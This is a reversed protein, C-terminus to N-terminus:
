DQREEEATQYGPTCQLTPLLRPLANSWLWPYVDISTAHHHTCISYHVRGRAQLLRPQSTLLSLERPRCCSRTSRWMCSCITDWLSAGNSLCTDCTLTSLQQQTQRMSHLCLKSQRSRLCCYCFMLDISVQVSYLVAVHEPLPLGQLQIVQCHTHPGCAWSAM